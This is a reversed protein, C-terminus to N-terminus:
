SQQQLEIINGEPDTLYVFTVTGAGPIEFSVVKGASGGGSELVTTRAAEVNDVAFAIHGFGIRNAAPESREKSHNYQFIELTPGREGFGPLRLHVGQIKADPVGTGEELWRGRLNRDPPVPICGFVQEYFMALKKWDRAIINTHVFKAKVAMEGEFCDYIVWGPYVPFTGLTGLTLSNSGGAM